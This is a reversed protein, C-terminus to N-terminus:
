LKSLFDTAEKQDYETAVDKPTQQKKNKISTSAGGDVLLKIVGMHGFKAADHLATDGDVDQDDVSVKLDSLCYKVVHDHGWFAAKMLGTRGSNAELAGPDAGNELAKIAHELSGHMCHERFTASASPETKGVENDDTAPPICVAPCGNSLLKAFVKAFHNFFLKEDNAYKEVWPKFKEDTMLAYDTPLMM